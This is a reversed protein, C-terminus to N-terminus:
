RGVIAPFALWTLVLSAVARPNHRYILPAQSHKRYHSWWFATTQEDFPAGGRPRITSRHRATIVTLAVAASLQFVVMLVACVKWGIRVARSEKREPWILDALFAFNIVLSVFVAVFIYYAAAGVYDNNFVKIKNATITQIKREGQIYDTVLDLNAFM